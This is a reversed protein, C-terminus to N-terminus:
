AVRLLEVQGRMGGRSVSRDGSDWQLVVETGDTLGDSCLVTRGAVAVVAEVALSKGQSKLSQSFLINVTCIYGDGIDLGSDAGVSSLVGGRDLNGGLAAILLHVESAGPRRGDGEISISAVAGDDDDHILM